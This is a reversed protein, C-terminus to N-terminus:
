KAIVVADELIVDYKYGSGFDKDTVLMGSLTVIMGTRVENTTTASLDNMGERGTGDRLHLFSRGMINHVAKVVKARVVVQKGTLADKGAWIEAVTKGGAPTQIPEIVTNTAKGAGGAMMAGHGAPMDPMSGGAMRAGHGVPMVPKSGALTIADVFFLEDFNKKLTPSFFNKNPMGGTFSVRDGVKVAVKPGAAWIKQTGTDVQVYTYRSANTVELVTGAISQVSSEAVAEPAAGHPEAGAAFSVRGLALVAAGVLVLNRKMKM